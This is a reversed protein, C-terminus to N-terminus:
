HRDPGFWRWGIALAGIGLVMGVARRLHQGPGDTSTDPAASLSPTAAVSGATAASRRGAVAPASTAPHSAVGASGTSPQPEDLDGGAREILVASLEAGYLYLRGALYFLLLLAIVGGLAGYLANASAVQNAVWTAGFIKLGSWGIAAFIAGPVLQRWRVSTTTSFIRYATLFLVLDFVFSIAISTVVTVPRPLFDLDVGALASGGVSILAVVGLVVLSFLKRLWGSFGKIVDGRFVVRTAAMLSAIVRLGSLLLTVLGIVGVTGRHEVVTTLLAAVGEDPEGSELTQEFGPLAETLALAVRTQDEPDDLVFGAASVALLLLPVLSLFAFFGIAAALQDAADEKYRQQVRLATAVIPHDKLSGAM